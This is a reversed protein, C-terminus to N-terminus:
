HALGAKPVHWNAQQTERLDLSEIRTEMAFGTLALLLAACGLRAPAPSM